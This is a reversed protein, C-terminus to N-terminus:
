QILRYFKRAGSGANTVTQQGNVIVPAPSVNSWVSPSALNTASQLSFGPYNTSWTLIVNTGARAIDLRPQIFLRFIAGSGNTGGGSGTGYLNLGSATLPGTPFAGEIGRMHHLVVFNNGNTNISFITGASASGGLYGEGYLTNGILTLGALPGSGDDGTFSHLNRFGTGNTNVAFVTGKSLPGATTTTGYLAAGSLILTGYPQSGTGNTYYTTDFDDFAFVNTLGVGNTNVKFVVGGVGNGGITANGYLTDGALVMGGAPNQGDMFGTFSALNTFGSGDTNVRFVTGRAFKGGGFTTGYLANGSAVLAGRPIAGDVNTFSPSLIASFNHLNTFGTGDTNVRFVTGRGSTGGAQATGYLTNGSLIVEAVLNAGDSNTFIGLSNTTGGSFSHLNTFSGGNTNVRFVVGKAAAGGYYTTGYLTDGAFAFGTQPSSGDVNTGFYPIPLASFTYTNTFVQIAGHTVPPLILSGLLVSARFCNAIFIKM